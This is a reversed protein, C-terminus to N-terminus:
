GFLKRVVFYILTYVAIALFIILFSTLLSNRKSGLNSKGAILVFVDIKTDYYLRMSSVYQRVPENIAHRKAFHLQFLNKLNVAIMTEVNSEFLTSFVKKLIVTKNVAESVAFITATSTSKAPRLSCHTIRVSYSIYM